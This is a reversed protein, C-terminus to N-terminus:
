PRRRAHQVLLPPHRLRDARLYCSEDFKLCDYLKEDIEFTAHLYELIEQRKLEPDGENLIITRTKRLEM